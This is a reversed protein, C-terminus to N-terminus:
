LINNYHQTIISINSFCINFGFILVITLILYECNRYLWSWTCICFCPGLLRLLSCRSISGPCVLSVFVWRLSVLCVLVPTRLCVCFLIYFVAVYYLCTQALCVVILGLLCVYSTPINMVRPWYGAFSFILILMTLALCWYPVFAHWCSLLCNIVMISRFSM